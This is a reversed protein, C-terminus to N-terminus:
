ITIIKTQKNKKKSNQHLKETIRGELNSICEETDSSRGNNGKITNKM